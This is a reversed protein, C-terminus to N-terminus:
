VRFPVYSIFCSFVSLNLKDIWTRFDIVFESGMLLRMVSFTHGLSKTDNDWFSGCWITPWTCFVGVQGTLCVSWKEKCWLQESVLQWLEFDCLVFKIGLFNRKCMQRHFKDGRYLVENVFTYKSAFFTSACIFCLLVCWFSCFKRIGDWSGCNSYLSHTKAM